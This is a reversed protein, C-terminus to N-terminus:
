FSQHPRSKEPRFRTGFKVPKPAVRTHLTSAVERGEVRAGVCDVTMVQVLAWHVSQGAVNLYRTEGARGLELAREFAHDFDRARFLVVTEDHDNRRRPRGDDVLIIYLLRASYFKM